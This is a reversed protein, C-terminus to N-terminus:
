KLEEVLKMKRTQHLLKRCGRHGYRCWHGVVCGENGDSDLTYLRVIQDDQRQQQAPVPALTPVPRFVPNRPFLPLRRRKRPPRPQNTAAAPGVNMIGAIRAESPGRPAPADTWTTSPTHSILAAQVPNNTSLSSPTKQSSSFASNPNRVGDCISKSEQAVLYQRRPFTEDASSVRQSQGPPSSRVPAPVPTPATAPRAPLTKALGISSVSTLLRFNFGKADTPPDKDWLKKCDIWGPGLPIRSEVTRSRVSGSVEYWKQASEAETQMSDREPSTFQFSAPGFIKRGRHDHTVDYKSEFISCFRSPKYPGPSPTPTTRKQEVAIPMRVIAQTHNERCKKTEDEQELGSVSTTEQETQLPIATEESSFTSSPEGPSATQTDSTQEVKDAIKEVYTFM